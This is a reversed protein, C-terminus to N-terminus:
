KTGGATSDAGVIQKISVGEALRKVSLEVNPLHASIVFMGRLDGVKYGTAKDYPYEIKIQKWLDPDAKEIDGHCQLCMEKVTIKQYYSFTRASDTGSWLTQFEAPNSQDAFGALIARDTSDPRDAINRWNTSVRKVTWGAGSNAAAIQQAKLQCVGVAFAPGNEDLATQLTSMLEGSFQVALNRAAATFLTDDALTNPKQTQGPPASKTEQSGCSVTMLAYLLLPILGKM